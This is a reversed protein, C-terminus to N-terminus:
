ERLKPWIGCLFFIHFIVKVEIKVPGLELVVPAVYDMKQASTARVNIKFIAVEKTALM